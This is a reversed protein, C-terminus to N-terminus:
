GTEAGFFFWFLCTQGSRGRTCFPGALWAGADFASAASPAGCGGILMPLLPAWTKCCSLGCGADLRPSWCPAKNAHVCGLKKTRRGQQSPQRSGCRAPTLRPTERSDPMGAPTRKRQLVSMVAARPALELQVRLRLEPAAPLLPQRPIGASTHTQTQHKKKKWKVWKEKVEKRGRLFRHCYIRGLVTSVAQPVWM